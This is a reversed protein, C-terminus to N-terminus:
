LPLFVCQFSTFDSRTKKNKHALFNFINLCCSQNTGLVQLNCRLWNLIRSWWTECPLFHQVWCANARPTSSYPTLFRHHHCHETSMPLNLAKVRYERFISLGPVAFTWGQCFCNCEWWRSFPPKWYKTTEGRGFSIIWNSENKGQGHKRSSGSWSKKQENRGVLPFSVTQPQM